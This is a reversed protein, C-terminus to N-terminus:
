LPWSRRMFEFAAAAVRPVQGNGTASLQGVRGAVGDAVRGVSPEAPWTGYGWGSADLFERFACRGHPISWSPSAIGQPESVRLEERRGCDADAMSRRGLIWLRDRGHPAGVAGAPICEWRLYYGSEALDCFVTSAYRVLLRPSNELFVWEPEVQRIVRITDPWRNRDDEHELRKGSSSFPQCPFGGTVVDAIGRWQTGDFTCIDDWIPADDIFGDRIRQLLVRQCWKDKEVYCVTRWGLIHHTALLGGGAGTFLSLERLSDM